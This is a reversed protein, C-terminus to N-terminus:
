LATCLLICVVDKDAKQLKRHEKAYSNMQQRYITDASEKRSTLVSQVVRGLKSRFAQLQRYNPTAMYLLDMAAENLEIELEYDSPDLDPISLNRTRFSPALQRNLPLAKVPGDANMMYLTPIAYLDYEIRFRGPVLPTRVLVLKDM